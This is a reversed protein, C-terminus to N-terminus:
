PSVSFQLAINATFAGNVAGIDAVGLPMGVPTPEAINVRRCDHNFSFHLLKVEARAAQAILILGGDLKGKM